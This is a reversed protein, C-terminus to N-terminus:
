NSPSKPFTIRALLGGDEPLLLDFRAHHRRAIREIIALGLGAGDAQSRASDRRTFPRKLRELEDTPIGPGHDRVELVPTDGGKVTIDLQGVDSGPTLGYRRANEILNLLVRQLETPNGRVLACPERHLTIQLTETEGRASTIGEVLAALDVQSLISHENLPRAYDLFQGIIADIQEVDASMANRIEESAPSMEVELRLRTLPTRLDHSIGALLLARDAEIRELDAVMANFSANAQRIERPGKAPLAEPRGGRGIAVAATALRKLPLNILRSIVVAGLLSLALAVAGWGVWQVRPISDLRSQDFAVWYGDDEIFFSVWLGPQGNVGLTMRTNQGLKTRVYQDIMRLFAQNPLPTLRDTEELPYIRIGENQALDILLARRKEPDSHILASRTLNVISVILQAAQQARPGRELIRFSQYWAGLSAGILIAILLFTRWFVGGPGRGPAPEPAASSSPSPATPM